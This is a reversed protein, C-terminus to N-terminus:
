SQAKLYNAVHRVNRVTQIDGRGFPGRNRMEREIKDPSEGEMILEAVAEVLTPHQELMIEYIGKEIGEQLTEEM